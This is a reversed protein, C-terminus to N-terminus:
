RTIEDAYKGVSKDWKKYYFFAESLYTKNVLALKSDKGLNQSGSAAAM